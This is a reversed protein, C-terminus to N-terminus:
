APKINGLRDVTLKICCDKIQVNDLTNQSKNNTGMENNIIPAAYYYPVFHGENDTCSVFKYIRAAQNASLNKSTINLKTGKEENTPVYVLDQPNLYFLLNNGNDDKEPVPLLNQKLREAVEVLPITSYKRKGDNDAYIAFFLNTGKAAEVFKSTKNGTNGQTYKNGKNEYVRVKFIPQHFKGNNLQTINKNLKDIGDPSFAIEPHEVIKGKSDTENFAQLHTLLIKKIGTDTISEIAKSTFSEDLSVRSAVLDNDFYYIETKSVNLQGAIESNDKFYKAIKKKDLGESLLQKVKQKLPKHVITDANDIAVNLQVKKRFRLNVVGKVTDKHLPKRVAWSDGKTQKVLEKEIPKGDSDKKWQWTKNVTKNIVRTNQKFSVITSQLINKSDLAINDWPLHFMWKYNKPNTEENKKYCLRSRLDFRLDSQKSKAYDNNLYNIHNRTACAIVLADLAHHRHDIRKKSFGKSEEIPVTTQFVRKGEKNEWKGFHNSQTKENLREFRQTIIENWVNNLGWDQKLASTITGNSAVVNKSTVAQEDDTRVINSLLNKVIKSIYRTDNLQREVFADPIEPMLLKKMKSRNNSFNDKVFSEFGEITEHLKVKKGFGLEIIKGTNKSIYEYATANGKDKNVASECIVKNSLSNDFFRSQPIIHEIEYDVTFLRALAIPQNTYPSRYNQSLWLKYKTLESSSPQPTRSIKEIDDPLQAVSKLAGDEYIKLIEQQSPSYPRVNEITSDNKLEALLAKIRLNTNENANVQNSIEKRAEATNKMDRGLEIHIEEFFDPEGNGYQSWIDAVVKLTEKLVQEVIPNRLEHQRFVNKLFYRIDDPSNWKLNESAEAHRGYVAYCAQYTNLGQLPNKDKARVFSKLVQKPIDSDSISDIKSENFNVDTLREIISSIRDKVEKAVANDNWYKGRRMLPLLKKIAKESYSAYDKEAIRVKKLNEIETTSFGNEILLDYIGKTKRKSDPALAKDIEAKSNVSYLLHWLKIETEPSVIASSEKELKNIIANRTKNCPYIKGEVYNWRHTEEKLKFYKLLPKQEIDARSNLWDYLNTFDDATILFDNTVDVDIELKNNVEMQRQYIRLNHIFQWLRFEQFLPHSKPICKLKQSKVQNTEKDLFCRTEYQCESILSKKSKLPRQYFLIDDVFLYIFGRGSINKFHSENNPYLGTICQKYIEESKLEPHFEIQKELILELEAKYYKREIVRVLKGKIKQAPNALLSDYIYAGVTKKSKDIDFETKKKLLTWDDEAPARFSRKEKGFKDKKVAGNEDTDTTVIFDKTKHKWEVKINSPKIFEWGNELVIRFLTQKNKNQEGTDVVDIVKLSYFEVLKNEKVEDDEEGRLQAYGRKQNFNLLLWALEQKSIKKTLAKKRLYYITWDYPIKKNSDSLEPFAVRFENLMENFSDTFLFEAKKGTEKPLYNVKPETGEKYQGFHKEFDIQAAYHEPLFGLINLVRHLRERRLLERERLRRISRFKTRDATQSVKNGQEFEGMLAADMPIIRSGISVIEGKKNEFDQKILAWGISNTGLDLGLITKM